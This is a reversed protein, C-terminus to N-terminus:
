LCFNLLKQVWDGLGFDNKQNKLFATGLSSVFSSKHKLLSLRALNLTFIKDLM